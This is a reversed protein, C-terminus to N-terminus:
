SFIRSERDSIGLVQDERGGVLLLVYYVTARIGTTEM